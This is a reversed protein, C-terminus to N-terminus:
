RTVQVVEGPVGDYGSRGQAQGRFGVDLDFVGEIAAVLTDLRRLHGHLHLVAADEDLLDVQGVPM